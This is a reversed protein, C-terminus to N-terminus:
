KDSCRSDALIMLEVSRLGKGNTTILRGLMCATTTQGNEQYQDEFYLPMFISEDANVQLPLLM